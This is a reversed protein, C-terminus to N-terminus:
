HYRKLYEIEECVLVVSCDFSSVVGTLESCSAVASAIDCDFSADVFDVAVSFHSFRQRKASVFYDAAVVAAAALQFSPVDDCEDNGCGYGDGADNVKCFLIEDFGEFTCLFDWYSITKGKFKTQFKKRHKTKLDHFHM